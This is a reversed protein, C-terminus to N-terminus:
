GTAAIAATRGRSQQKLLRRAITLAQKAAEAPADPQHGHAAQNRKSRIDLLMKYDGRELLGESTLATILTAPDERPLILNKSQAMERLIVEIAMWIVVLAVEPLSRKVLRQGESLCEEIADQAILPKSADTLEEERENNIILRLEWEPHASIADRLRTWYDAQRMIGKTKVEALIFQGEPTTAIFDPSFERLFDPLTESLPKEQVEFGRSRYEKATESVLRDHITQQVTPM